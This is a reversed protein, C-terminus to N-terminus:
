SILTASLSVESGSSDNSDEDKPANLGAAKGYAELVAGIDQISPDLKFFSEAQEAGLFVKVVALVDREDVEDLDAKVSQKLEFPITYTKGHTKFSFHDAKGEYRQARAADLDFVELSEPTPKRNAM